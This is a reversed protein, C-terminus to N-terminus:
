VLGWKKRLFWDTGLLAVLLAFFLWADAATSALQWKTQRVEYEKPRQRIEEIQAPLEEPALTRGGDDKTWNALAAMQDPDAAPNSLEVDRDFVLFEARASGLKRGDGTATTEV